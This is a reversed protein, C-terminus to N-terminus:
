IRRLWAKRTRACSIRQQGNLFPLLGDLSTQTFLLILFGDVFGFIYFFEWEGMVNRNGRMMNWLESYTLAGKNGTDYKSFISEFMEPVFRGETDYTQSDSGHKCQHIRKIDITLTPDPIWSTQSPYAFGGHIVLIAVFSFVVNFGLARFGQYTEWPTIYGDHNRDFFDVHKQLVTEDRRTDSETGHPHEYSQAIEARPRGPNPVTKELRDEPPPRAYTIPVSRITSTDITAAMNQKNNPNALLHKRIKFSTFALWLQCGSERRSFFKFGRRM